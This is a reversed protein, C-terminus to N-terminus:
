RLVSLGAFDLVDRALRARDADSRMITDTVLVQLGQARLGAALPEDVADVVFYQLLGAYYEAVAAASVDLGLEALMKAAPGKIAQGGVIPSVALAPRARVMDRIGPLDLIPALSVFPNSPCFIILDAQALAQRVAASAQAQGAGDFVFGSVRPRCQRHVFYEQFGLVGEDSDVLTRLRDDTMPLVTVAVGLAHCLARTVDSLSEGAALRRQREVHTALDRDGIRFWTDGGLRGLADLFSWTEGAQGWGTESNALGALTYMVTDLDPSIHLGLHDFDDGTNVIVTLAEPPLVQALGHALKAGGVGGALAAVKM